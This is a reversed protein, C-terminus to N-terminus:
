VQIRQTVSAPSAGLQAHLNVLSGTWSQARIEVDFKNNHRDIVCAGAAQLEKFYAEPDVGSTGIRLRLDGQNLSLRGTVPDARLCLYAYLKFAGDSLEPLAWALNELIAGDNPRDGDRLKEFPHNSRPPAANALRIASEVDLTDRSSFRLMLTGILCFVTVLLEIADDVAANMSVTVLGAGQLIRLGQYVSLLGLAGIMIRDVKKRTRRRNLAFCSFITALCVLIAVAAFPKVLFVRWLYM